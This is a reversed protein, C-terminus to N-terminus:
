GSGSDQSEGSGKGDGAGFWVVTASELLFKVPFL